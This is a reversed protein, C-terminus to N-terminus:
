YSFRTRLRLAYGDGGAELNLLLWRLAHYEIEAQSGPGGESQERTDSSWSVPQRFGVFVRPSVYRGAVLTAGRLGDPQVEVVDLGVSEAAATEISSTVADLALDTGLDSFTTQGLGLDQSAPRGTALYSVIDSNDMSPDSSLVLNMREITGDIGLEISVEPEGDRASPVAYVGLVDFQTERPLGRFAVRGRSLSFRRGFQEVYSREPIAEMDGLLRISDGPAKEVRVQGAVQVALEPNSAQRVWTDRGVDLNLALALSDVLAFGTEDSRFDRGFVARLEEYDADSLTVDRVAGAELGTLYVDAVPVRLTGSLEPRQFSGRLTTTGSITATALANDVAGFSSASLGLDIAGVTLDDLHATGNARLIGGGSRILGGEVIVMTDSLVLTGGVGTWATGLASLNVRGGTLRLTGGLQPEDASGSVQLQGHLTGDVGGYGLPGAVTQLWALNASDALIQLAVPGPAASVVPATTDAQWPLRLLVPLTGAVTVSLRGDQLLEDQVTLVGARYSLDNSWQISRLQPDDLEVVWEAALEPDSASGGVSLDGSVVGSLDDFGVLDALTGVEFDRAAVRFDQEGAGSLSGTAFLRREGARLDLSDVAIGSALRISAPAVLSWTEGDFSASVEELFVERRDARPDGRATLALTRGADVVSRLDIAVLEGDYAATLSTNQVAADPTSLGSFEASLDGTRPRIGDLAATGAAALGVLQLTGGILMANATVTAGAEASRFPGRMWASVEGGGVAFSTPVLPGDSRFSELRLAATAEHSAGEHLALRGDADLSFGSGWVATTDLALTGGSARTAIRLSDIGLGLWAVSDARARLSATMTEPEVGSGRLEVLFLPSRRVSSGAEVASSDHASRLALDFSYEPEEPVVSFWGIGDVQSSGVRGVLSVDTRGASGAIVIEGAGSPSSGVRATDFVARIRGEFTGAELGTGTGAVRGTLHTSPVSGPVWLAVDIREFEGRDISWTPVDRFPETQGALQLRGGEGDIQAELSIVGEALTASAAGTVSDAGQITSPLLTIEGRATVTEPNRGEWSGSFRANARGTVAGGSPSVSELPMDAVAGEVEFVPRVPDFPRRAEVTATVSGTSRWASLSALLREEPEIRWAVAASDASAAGYEFSALHFVGSGNFGAPAGIEVTARGTGSLQSPVTDGLVAALDVDSWSLSEATVISGSDGITLVGRGQVDGGELGADLGWEGTGGHLAVALDARTLLTQGVVLPSSPDLSVRANGTLTRVSTGRTDVDFTGHAVLPGEDARTHVREFTGALSLAMLSDFPAVDGEAHVSTSGAPDSAAIAASVRALGGDLEAQVESPGVDVSAISSREVAAHLTGQWTRPEPGRVDGTLRASTRGIPFAAGVLAGPDFEELGLDWRLGRAGLQRLMVQGRASGAPRFTRPRAVLDVALSDLDGHFAVGLELAAEGRYTPAFGRIERPSLRDTALEGELSILGPRGWDVTMEGSLKSAEGIVRLADLNAVSGQLEGAATIFLAYSPSAAALRARAGVIEFRAMPGSSPEVILDNGRANVRTLSLTTDSWSAGRGSGEALIDIRGGELEIRNVHIPRGAEPAASGQPPADSSNKAFLGVGWGNPRDMFVLYPDTVRINAIVIPGEGLLTGIRPDLTVGRAEFARGGWADTIRVDEATVGAPPSWGLGGVEIELGSEEVTGILARLVFTAGATTQLVLFGAVGLVLIGVGLATAIRAPGSEPAM